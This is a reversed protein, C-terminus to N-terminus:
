PTLNNKLLRDTIEYWLQIVILGFNKRKFDSENTGGQWCSGYCLFSLFSLSEEEVERHKALAHM